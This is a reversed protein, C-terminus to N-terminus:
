CDNRHSLRNWVQTNAPSNGHFMFNIPVTQPAICSRGQHLMLSASLLTSCKFSWRDMGPNHQTAVRPAVWKGCHAQPKKM